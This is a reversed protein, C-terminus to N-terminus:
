LATQSYLFRQSHLDTFWRWSVPSQDKFRVVQAAACASSFLWGKGVGESTTIHNELCKNPIAYSLGNQWAGPLMAM